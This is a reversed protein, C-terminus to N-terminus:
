DRFEKRKLPTVIVGLSPNSTVSFTGVNTTPSTVAAKVANTSGSSMRSYTSGAAALKSSIWFRRDVGRSACNAWNVIPLSRVGLFEPVLNAHM